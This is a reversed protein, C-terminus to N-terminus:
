STAHHVRRITLNSLLLGSMPRQHLAMKLHHSGIILSSVAREEKERRKDKKEVSSYFRVQGGMSIGTSM